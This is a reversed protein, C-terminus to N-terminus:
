EPLPRPRSTQDYSLTWIVQPIPTWKVPTVRTDWVDRIAFYNTGYLDLACPTFFMRANKAFNLSMVAHKDNRSTAAICGAFVLAPTHMAHM